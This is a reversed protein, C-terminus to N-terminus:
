ELALAQRPCYRVCQGCRTCKDQDVQPANFGKQTLAGAPCVRVSPCPHNQPCRYQNVVLTKKADAAPDAEKKFGFAM